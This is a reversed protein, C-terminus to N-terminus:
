ILYSDESEGKIRAMVEHRDKLVGDIKELIDLKIEDPFILGDEIEADEEDLFGQELTETV